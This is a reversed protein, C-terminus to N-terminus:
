HLAVIRLLVTPVRHGGHSGPSFVQATGHVLVHDVGNPPSVVGCLQAASLPVVWPGVLPRRDDGHRGPPTPYTAM